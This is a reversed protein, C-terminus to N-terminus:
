LRGIPLEIVCSVKAKGLDNCSVTSTADDLSCVKDDEIKLYYQPSPMTIDFIASQKIQKVRYHVNGHLLLYVDHPPDLIVNAVVLLHVSAPEVNKFAHNKLAATVIGTGTQIGEVLATYGRKGMTEMASISPPPKYQTDAFKTIRLINQADVFVSDNRIDNEIRWEFEIGDLTTFTDGKDDKARIEFAEPADELFLKQTTIAFEM